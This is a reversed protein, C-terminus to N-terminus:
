KEFSSRLEKGYLNKKIEIVVLVDGIPWVYSDTHPLQRGEGTVIMCDIQSSLSGNVSEIFGKVVRIDLGGPITRSLTERALGEYMDGITPGHTIGQEAIKLAETDLFAKLLSAMDSIMSAVLTSTLHASSFLFSNSGIYLLLPRTARNFSAADRM